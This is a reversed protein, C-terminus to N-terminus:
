VYLFWMVPPFHFTSSTCSFYCCFNMELLFSYWMLRMKSNRARPTWLLRVFFRFYEVKQTAIEFVLLLKESKFTKLASINHRRWAFLCLYWAIVCFATIPSSSNWYLFVISVSCTPMITLRKWLRLSHTRCNESVSFFSQFCLESPNKIHKLDWRSM